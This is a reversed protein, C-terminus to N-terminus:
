VEAMFSHSCVACISIALADVDSETSTTPQRYGNPKGSPIQLAERWVRATYVVQRTLTRSHVVVYVRSYFANLRWRGRSDLHLM